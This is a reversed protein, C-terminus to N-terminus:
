TCADCQDDGALADTFSKAIDDEAQDTVGDKTYRSVLRGEDEMERLFRLVDNPTASVWKKCTKATLTNADTYKNGDSMNM